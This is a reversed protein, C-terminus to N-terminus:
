EPNIFDGERQPVCVEGQFMKERLSAVRRLWLLLSCRAGVPALLGVAEGGKM